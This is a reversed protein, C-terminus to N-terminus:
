CPANHGCFHLVMLSQSLPLPLPLSSYSTWACRGACVSSVTLWRWFLLTLSTPVGGAGLSKLVESIAAEAATPLLTVFVTDSFCSNLFLEASLCVVCWEAILAWRWRGASSMEQHRKLTWSWRWEGSRAQVKFEATLCVM